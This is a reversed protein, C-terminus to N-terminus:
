KAAEGMVDADGARIAPSGGFFEIERAIVDDLNSQRRVRGAAAASMRMFKAPDVMLAMIGAAMSEADEPPALIACEDDVFESVAGVDNTVPVLGSAMAEDRAVGHTDGRTPVLFVGHDGHLESLEQQTLFSRRFHVNPFRALEGFNEEFLPGDGVLTFRLRKFEPQLSLLNIVRAAVDNAYIRSHHPRVLLVRFRQEAAKAAYKFMRTDIPNHIVAFRDEPLDIGIDERVQEAFSRSVFVFGLRDPPNGMVRKWFDTRVDSEVAALTMDAKNSFNFKRRHWPQIDSGHLWVVTRTTAAAEELGQWMDPDLFHVAIARHGSIRLTARLSDPDCIRVQVGDFEYSTPTLTRTLWVVDVALGRRQYAKVRRHVFANRYLSERSPYQNVVVLMRGEGPIVVPTPAARALLLSDVYAVFSGRVRLSLRYQVTSRPAVGGTNEGHPLLSQTLISGSAGLAQLRIEYASNPAAVLFAQWQGDSELEDRSMSASHLEATERAPLKCVLELRSGRASLSVLPTEGGGAFLGALDAGSLLRQSANRLGAAAPMQDTFRRIASMSWGPSPLAASDAYARPLHAGGQIYSLGDVSLLGDGTIELDDLRDLLEGVPGAWASAPMLTRRAALRDVRRNELEPAVITVREGDATSYAGKGVVDGQRYSLSLLLDLLYHKGYFDAPHWPAVWGEGIVDRLVVGDTSPPLRKLPGRLELHAPADIWAVVHVGEQSDIMECLQQLEAQHRVRAVIFVERLPEDLCVGHTYHVLTRFREEWCHEILVKRLAAQRRARYPEGLPHKLEAYAERLIRDGDDTSVVLDGFMSNLASSYNSYVSTGTGILELARRAFMTPSQKITNMTLGARYSRYLRPTGSYEISPRMNVAYRDPFRQDPEVSGSNRDFIEFPGVLSLADALTMFDQCRRPHRGYWAGAFFSGEVRQDGVEQIPNHLTPQLAFPLVHVRSHGLERKYAPIMAADTTFVVDCLGAVPLFAEFHLPDEKSWFASPIGLERCRRIIAAVGVGDGQVKGRWEGSIGEWASEVFLLHPQVAAIQESWSEPTLLTLHCDPALNDATFRDCVAAVRLHRHSRPLGPPAQMAPRAGTEPDRSAAPAGGDRLRSPSVAEGRGTRTARWAVRARWRETSLRWLGAPLALLARPSRAADVILRGLRYAVSGRLADLEAAALTGGGSSAAFERENRLEEEARRVRRLLALQEM